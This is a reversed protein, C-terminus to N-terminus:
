RIGNTILDKQVDTIALVIPVSQNLPQALEYGVNNNAEKTSSGPVTCNRQLDLLQGYHLCQLYQRERMFGSLPTAWGEALVQLSIEDM